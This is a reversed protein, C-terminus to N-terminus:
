LHGRSIRAYIDQIEKLHQVHKEAILCYRTGIWQEEGTEAKALRRKRERLVGEWTDIENALEEVFCRANERSFARESRARRM